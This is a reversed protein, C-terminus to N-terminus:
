NLPLNPCTKRHPGLGLRELGFERWEESTLNRSLTKCAQRVAEQANWPWLYVSGSETSTGIWNPRVAWSQIPSPHKLSLLEKRTRGPVQRSIELGNDGEKVEIDGAQSDGSLAPRSASELSDWSKLDEPAAGSLRRGTVMSWIGARPGVFLQTRDRNVSVQGKGTWPIDKMPTPRGSDLEYRVVEQEGKAVLVRSDRSFVGEPGDIPLEAVVEWNQTRIFAIGKGHLVVLTKGDPSFQPRLLDTTAKAKSLIITKWQRRSSTEYIRVTGDDYAVAMWKEDRSFTLDSVPHGDASLAFAGAGVKWMGIDKEELAAFVFPEGALLFLRPLELPSTKNSEVWNKGVRRIVNDQLVYLQSATRVVQFEEAKAENLHPVRKSHEDFLGGECAAFLKGTNDFAAYRCGKGDIRLPGDQPGVGKDTVFLLTGDPAFVASLLSTSPPVVPDPQPEWTDTRYTQSPLRTAIRRGVPSSVILRSGDASLSLRRYPQQLLPSESILKGSPIDFVKISETTLAALRQQNASVALSQVPGAALTKVPKGWSDQVINLLISTAAASPELSLSEAALLAALTADGHDAGAIAAAENRLILAAKARENATASRELQEAHRRLTLSDADAKQIISAVHGEASALLRKREEGAMRDREAIKKRADEREQDVGQKGKWAFYGIALGMLVSVALFASALRRRSRAEDLRRQEEAQRELEKRESQDRSKDLFAMAETFRGGYREAWAATPKTRDRWDLAFQLDTGYWPEEEDVVAHLLDCYTSGSASEADVWAKLGDWQRILSEHSIDVLSDGSPGDQLILFSRGSGRFREILSRIREETAGTVRALESVRAPRRVRRHSSDTATLSQFIRKALDLDEESLGLLAEEADQSLAGKMEGTQQYHRLELPGDRGEGEWVRWTRLLAHQMVPLQDPDDGADNLIRDVLQPSIKEGALRVPGEVAERRQQRTLRPILYQSRNLAEPLGHFRDCDGLFDSRMTIVVFVPFERQEALDLLLMVFEAAEDLRGAMMAFRFIEEFQDVLLLCNTESAHPLRNLAATLLEAGTERLEAQNAAFAAALHSLPAEGPTLAVVKWRDRSEVLFGAQLQPILGARILSSKGSGSSGVVALFRTRHLRVLLDAVQQRRGFFWIAEDMQFPRLGVFPKEVRAEAATM